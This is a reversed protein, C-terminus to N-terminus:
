KISEAATVLNKLLYAVNVPGIGGTVPTYMAAADKIDQVIYDGYLKDDSGKYMGVGILIVDTKLYGPKIVEPKGVATIIIDSSKIISDANATQSTIIQPKLGM